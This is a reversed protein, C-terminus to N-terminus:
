YNISDFFHYLQHQQLDVCVYRDETKPKFETQERQARKPQTTPQPHQKNNTGMVVVVLLFVM